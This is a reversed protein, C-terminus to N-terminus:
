KQGGIKQVCWNALVDIVISSIKLFAIKSYFAFLICTEDHFFLSSTSLAAKTWMAFKIQEEKNSIQPYKITIQLFM